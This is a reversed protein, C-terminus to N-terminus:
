RRPALLTLSSIAALCWDFRRAIEDQETCVLRLERDAIRLRGSLEAIPGGSGGGTNDEIRYDLRGGAVLAYTRDFSDQGRQGRATLELTRQLRRGRALDVTIGVQGSALPQLRAGPPLGISFTAGEVTFTTAAPAQAPSRSAVIALLAAAFLTLTAPRGAARARASRHHPAARSAGDGM